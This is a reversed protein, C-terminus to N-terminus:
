YGLLSAIEEELKRSGLFQDELTKNFPVPTDLSAVRRVPGDLYQFMEDAVVAAIEAGMGM